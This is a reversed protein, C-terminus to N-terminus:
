PLNRLLLRQSGSCGGHYLESHDIFGAHRYLRLAADNDASATLVLLRAEPHRQVLDALVAALARSGIGRGQWDADIFFARLGLAPLPFDRGAVSRAHPDIRYFGVPTDGRMIAM